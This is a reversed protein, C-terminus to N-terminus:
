RKIFFWLITLLLLSVLIPTFVVGTFNYAQGYVVGANNSGVVLFVWVFTFLYIFFLKPRKTSVEPLSDFIAVIGTVFVLLKSFFYTGIGYPFFISLILFLGLLVNFTLLVKNSKRKVSTNETENTLDEM